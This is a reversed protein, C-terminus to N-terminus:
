SQVEWPGAFLVWAIAFLLGAVVYYSPEPGLIFSPGWIGLWFLPSLLMRFEKGRAPSREKRPLRRRPFKPLSRPKVKLGRKEIKV